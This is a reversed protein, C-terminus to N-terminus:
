LRNSRVSALISFLQADSSFLGPTRRLTPELPVAVQVRSGLQILAFPPTPTGHRRLALSTGKHNLSSIERPYSLGESQDMDGSSQIGRASKTPLM